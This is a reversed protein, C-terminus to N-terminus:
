RAGERVIEHDLLRRERIDRISAALMELAKPDALVEITETLASFYECDVTVFAPKGHRTILIVKDEALREDLSNIQKRAESIDLKCGNLHKM